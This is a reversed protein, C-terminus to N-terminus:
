DEITGDWFKEEILSGSLADFYVHSTENVTFDYVLMDKRNDYSLLYSGYVGKQDHDNLNTKNANAKEVVVPILDKVDVVASTDIDALPVGDVIVINPDPDDYDTSYWIDTTVAGNVCQRASFKLSNDHSMRIWGTVYIDETLKKDVKELYAIIEEKEGKELKRGEFLNYSYIIHDGVSGAIDERFRENEPIVTKEVKEVASDIINGGTGSGCGGIAFACIFTVAAISIMSLTKKRM